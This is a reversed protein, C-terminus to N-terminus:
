VGTLSPVPVALAPRAAMAEWWAAGHLADPGSRAARAPAPEADEYAAFAPGRRQRQWTARDLEFVMADLTQGSECTGLAPGRLRLGVLEMLQQSSRNDVACIGILRQVGAEQFAADVCMRGLELSIRGHWYRAHTWLGMELDGEAEPKAPPQFRFLSVWAGTEKLVASVSAMKGTRTAEVVAEVRRYVEWENGPQDWLLHQNFAPHRTADFLPWTDSLCVPRLALRKSYVSTLRATLDHFDTPM